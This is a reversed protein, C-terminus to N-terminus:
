TKSKSNTAAKQLNAEKLEEIKQKLISELGDNRRALLMVDETKITSRGAHQAFSELDTAVTGSIATLHFYTTDRKTLTM